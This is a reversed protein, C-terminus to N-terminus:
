KESGTATQDTAPDSTTSGNEDQDDETRDETGAPAPMNIQWSVGFRDKLWAFRPSFGYNDPPMLYEGGDALKETIHQFQQDNVGDAFLSIAPTFTFDHPAPSDFFRFTQGGIRMFGEAVTGEEGDDDATRLSLSTIEADPIAAAYLTMAARASGEFMLFPTVTLSM